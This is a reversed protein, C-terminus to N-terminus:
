DPLSDVVEFRIYENVYFSDTATANPSVTVRIKSAGIHEVSLNGTQNINDLDYHVNESEFTATTGPIIQYNYVYVADYGRAWYKLNSDSGLGSIFYTDEPIAGTIVNAYPLMGYSGANSENYAFKNEGEPDPSTSVTERLQGQEVVHVIPDQIKAERKIDVNQCAQIIAVGQWVCNTGEPRVWLVVHPINTGSIPQDYINTLNSNFTFVKTDPDFTGLANQPSPSSLSEDALERGFNIHTPILMKASPSYSSSSYSYSSSSSYSYSSYSSSSSSYSSSYYSYYSYSSAIISSANEFRIQKGALTDGELYLNIKDRINLQFGYTASPASNSNEFAEESCAFTKLQKGTAVDFAKILDCQKGTPIPNSSAGGSSSVDERATIVFTQENNTKITDVGTVSVQGGFQLTGAKHMTVDFTVQLTGGQALDTITYVDDARSVTGVGTGVHTQNSVSYNGDVVQPKVITLISKENTDTGSNTVTYTVKFVEGVKGTVKDATIGVSVDTFINRSIIKVAKGDQVAIVTTGDKWPREELKSPDFSSGGGLAKLQGNEKTITTGDVNVTVKNNKGIILVNDLDTTTVIRKANAM